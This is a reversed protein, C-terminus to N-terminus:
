LDKWHCNRQPGLMIHMLAYGSHRRESSHVSHCSGLPWRHVLTGTLVTTEENPFDGVYSGEGKGSGYM